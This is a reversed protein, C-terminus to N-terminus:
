YRWLRQRWIGHVFPNVGEALGQPNNHVILRVGHEAVVRDRHTLMAKFKWGTNVHLLAFPPPAPFFAERALHLM